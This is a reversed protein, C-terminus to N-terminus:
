FFLRLIRRSGELNGETGGVSRSAAGNVNPIKRGSGRNVLKEIKDM